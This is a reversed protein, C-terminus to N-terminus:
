KNNLPKLPTISYVSAALLALWFDIRGYCGEIIVTSLIISILGYSKHRVLIRVFISLGVIGFSLLVFLFTNLFIDQYVSYISSIDMGLISLFDSEFIISFPILVRSNNSNEAGEEFNLAEFFRVFAMPFALYVLFILLLFIIAYKMNRRLNFFLFLVVFLFGMSSTSLIIGIICVILEALRNKRYAIELVPGMFVAYWSPEKFFGGTRYVVGLSPVALSAHNISGQFQGFDFSLNYRLLYFSLFQCIIFVSFLVCIYVYSSILKEKTYSSSNLFFNYLIAFISCNYVFRLQSMFMSNAHFLFYDYMAICLFIIPYLYYKKSRSKCNTSRVLFLIAFVLYLIDALCVKDGLAWNEFIVFAFVLCYLQNYQISNYKILSSGRKIIDLM